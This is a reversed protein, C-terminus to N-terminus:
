PQGGGRKAGRLTIPITSSIPRGSSASLTLRLQYRGAPLEPLVLTAAARDPGAEGTVPALLQLRGSGLKSDDAGLLDAEAKWPGRGLGYGAVVFRAPEGSTLEPRAAPTYPLPPERMEGRPEERALLWRNSPDPFLPPLLAPKAADFSPVRLPLARLGYTGTSGNRVLVRLSFDGPLLELHAAFKLGGSRLVPEAKGLDFRLTEAIFDHVAGSLDLAYAYIEVPLNPPQNGHLLSEGGIELLLSVHRKEGGAKAPLALVALDVDDSEEGSMVMNATQLLRDVPDRAAYPRPAYFGQRASVLAGRLPAKLEVRLRHYAGDAVIREPEVSLVYTVGTRASLTRLALSLDNFSDYLEGGTGRALLALSDRDGRPRLGEGPQGRLGGIDVAQVVCDARRLEELMREIENGAETLGFREDSDVRWPQGELVSQQLEGLIAPDSTGAILSADFGESMLVVYKRGEVEALLRAFTSLSASFASVRARDLARDTRSSEGQARQLVALVERDFDSTISRVVSPANGLGSLERKISGVALRLPDATRDLLEPFGLTELATGIQQRDSTFGLVLQPGLSARYTAVAVLDSPHLDPLVSLAAARAKFVSKPEAFTLDFLFLFHRRAAAPVAHGAETGGPAALDVAEFGSIKLRKRGEYVEFDRALLGRAPEGAVTVLIPVEVSIVDTSGSFSPPQAAWPEALGTVGGFGLLTLGLVVWHVVGGGKPASDM